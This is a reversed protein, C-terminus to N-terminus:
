DEKPAASKAGRRRRASPTPAMRPAPREAIRLPLATVVTDGLRVEVSYLGFRPFIVDRIAAVVRLTGQAPIDDGLDLPATPTGLSLNRLEEGDDGVIRLAIESTHLTERDAQLHAVAFFLAHKHPLTSTFFTDIGIGMAYIKDEIAAYDCLFAFDIKISM